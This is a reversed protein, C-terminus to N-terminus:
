RLTGTRRDRRSGPSAMTRSASETGADEVRIRAVLKYRMIYMKYLARSGTGSLTPALRVRLPLAATGVHLTALTRENGILCMSSILYAVYQPLM